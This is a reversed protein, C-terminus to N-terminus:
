HLTYSYSGDAKTEVEFWETRDRLYHELLNGPVGDSEPGIKSISLDSPSM